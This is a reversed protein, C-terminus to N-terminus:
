ELKEEIKAHTLIHARLTNELHTKVWVLKYKERQLPSEICGRAAKAPASHRHEGQGQRKSHDPPRARSLVQRREIKHGHEKSPKANSMTGEDRCYRYM